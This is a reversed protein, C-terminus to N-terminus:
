PIPGLSTELAPLLMSRPFLTRFRRARQRAEELRGASILAQIWLGEREESLRGRPFERAHRALADFAESSRGGGVARHAAELLQREAALRTDHRAPSEEDASARPSAPAASTAPAQRAREPETSKPEPTAHGPAIEAPLAPLALPSSALAATAATATPAAPAATAAPAPPSPSRGGIGAVLGGGLALTALGVALTKVWLGGVLSGSATAGAGGASLAEAGARITAPLNADVPVPGATPPAAGEPGGQPAGGGADNGGLGGLGLTAHVRSLVRERVHPAAVPRQREARLLEEIDADLPELDRLSM